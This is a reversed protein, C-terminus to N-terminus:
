KGNRKSEKNLSWMKQYCKQYVQRLNYPGVMHDNPSPGRFGALYKFTKDWDSNKIKRLVLEYADKRLRKMNQSLGKTNDVQIMMKKSWGKFQELKDM